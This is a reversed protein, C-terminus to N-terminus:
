AGTFIQKRQLFYNIFDFSSFCKQLHNEVATLMAPGQLAFRVPAFRVFTPSAFGGPKPASCKLVM